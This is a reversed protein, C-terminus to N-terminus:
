GLREENLVEYCNIKKYHGWRDKYKKQLLGINDVFDYAIPEKKGKFTRAIRGISQVVVAYDSKPTTLYLRDLRPIDLGEKALSYTAFMYLKEGNQMDKIAKEREEKKSKSSLIVSKKKLEKPLLHRLDVLHQVRDSLILSSNNFDKILTNIIKKNRNDSNCLYAILKNWNITGDFNLYINSDKLGTNIKKIGVDLIKGKVEEESIEVIVDGLIAKTVEVLGDSRHLTATLGYKYRANLNNLVKYFRQVKTPTGVVNHCEDVIIVDFIDKYKPLDLKAMTQVTAFTVKKGINVKGGTITGVGNKGFYIQYRKKSQNLLDKTHTLWLARYGLRKILAIGIQTKGSGAPAKIIGCRKNIAHVANEQYDYLSIENDISIKYSPVTNDKANILFKELKYLCGYPVRIKNGIVEYFNIKMPTNGLWFNMKLKKYYEPNSISLNNSCWNELNETYDLEIYERIENM